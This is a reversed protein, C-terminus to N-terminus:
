PNPFSSLLKKLQSTYLPMHELDNHHGGPIAIFLDHPKFYKTLKKGSQFPIIEDETGHFIAIPSKIQQMYLDNRLPFRLLFKPIWPYYHDAMDLMSYFPAELIVLGPHNHAALYAAVGTGISRGYIIIASESFQKCIEQYIWQADHFLAKESLTGTSKGYERYDMILIDFGSETFLASINGWTRLSGANGHFYLIVGKPNATTFHLANITSRPTTPFNIEKFDYPYQFQFDAPLKEPYFILKKQFVVAMTMLLFVLILLTIGIYIMRKM